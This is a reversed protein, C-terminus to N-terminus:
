KSERKAEVLLTSRDPKDMNSADARVDFELRYLRVAAFPPGREIGPPRHDKFEHMYKAVERDLKEPHNNAMSTFLKRIWAADIQVEKPKADSTVGVLRYVVMTRPYMESYMPYRSFPWLEVGSVIAAFHMLLLIALLVHVTIIRKRPLDPVFGGDM